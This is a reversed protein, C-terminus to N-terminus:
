SGGEAWGGLEDADKEGGDDRTIDSYGVGVWEFRGGRRTQPWVKGWFAM